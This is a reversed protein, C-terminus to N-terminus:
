KASVTEETGISDITPPPDTYKSRKSHALIEAASQAQSYISVEDITGTFYDGGSFRDGFILVSTGTFLTNVWGASSSNDGNIYISKNTGDSVASVHYWTNATIPGYSFNNVTGSSGDSTTQFLFNGGSVALAYSMNNGGQDWKSVLYQLTAVDGGTRIWAEITVYSLDLTNDDAVTIFDNGDFSISDGTSFGVDSRDYWAGGDSGVWSAGTITGTNSNASSDGISSGTGEDMHWRAVLNATGTDKTFTDDFSSKATATAKGYYIYIEATSGSPISPVKVWVSATEGASDWDEIWFSRHVANQAIRIDSGDSQAKTFGDGFNGANLVVNVQYDTLSGGSANEQITILRRYGWTTVDEPDPPPDPPPDQDNLLINM